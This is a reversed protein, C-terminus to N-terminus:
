VLQVVAEMHSTQPFLDILTLSEIQWILTLDRLDRALAAPHCSVYTLRQPRRDVLSARVSRPLGARPPDVIVRDAGQPLNSIWSEVAQRVVEVNASRNRRSNIRAYRAAVADSEVLVVREYMPSCALAFLGDGGYLDFAQRGSWKGVVCEILDPLLQRHAQFFCRADFALDLGAVAIEVEGQPQGPLVPATTIVGPANNSSGTGSRGASLPM